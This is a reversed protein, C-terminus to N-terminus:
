GSSLAGASLPRRRSSCPPQRPRVKEPLGRRARSAHVAASVAPGPWAGGAVTPQCRAPGSGVSLAHRDASGAPLLISRPRPEAIGAACRELGGPRPLQPLDDRNEEAVDGPRGSKPLPEVRLREAADHLAVEGDRLRHEFPVAARHLLEDAVGHHRDEADGDHVLVIGQTGRTCGMLQTVLEGPEVVLQVLLEAGLELDPHSDVCALDDRVLAACESGTIGDIDGRPELLRCLRAVDKDAVRRSLESFGRELELRDRWDIRLSLRLRNECM